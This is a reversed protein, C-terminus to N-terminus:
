RAAVPYVTPYRRVLCADESRFEAYDTEMVDINGGAADTRLRPGGNRQAVLHREGGRDFLGAANRYLRDAHDDARVLRFCDNGTVLCIKDRQRAPKEVIRAPTPVGSRCEAGIGDVRRLITARTGFM